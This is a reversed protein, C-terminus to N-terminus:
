RPPTPKATPRPPVSTPQPPPSTPVLTPTSTRIPTPLPTRTQTPTLTPTPTPPYLITYVEREKIAAEVHDCNDVGLVNKYQELAQVLDGATRYADGLRLYSVCLFSAAKGGLYDARVTHVQKLHSVAQPWDSQNVSLYGQRYSEALQKEELAAPDNPLVQLANDFSQIAQSIQEPSEPASILLEVGQQLHAQFLTQAVEAAKFTADDILLKELLAIAESWNGESFFGKAQDFREAKAKQGLVVDIQEKANEYSPDLAVISQLRELADDWRGAVVAQGAEKYWTSLQEYRRAKAYWTKVDENNPALALAEGFATVARDYDGVNMAARGQNVLAQVRALRQNGLITSLTGTAYLAIVLAMFMILIIAILPWPSRRRVDRTAVASARDDAPRYTEGVAASAMADEPQMEQLQIFIDIENLLADVGRRDPALTKLRAFCAKAETWERRRYHAM